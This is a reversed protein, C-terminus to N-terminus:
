CTLRAPSWGTEQAQLWHPVGPGPDGEEARQRAPPQLPSDAFAKGAGQLSLAPQPPLWPLRPGPQWPQTHVVHWEGLPAAQLCPDNTWGAPTARPSGWSLGLESPGASAQHHSVGSRPTKSGPWPLLMGEKGEPQRGAPDQRCLRWARSRVAPEPSCCAKNQGPPPAASAGPCPATLIVLPCLSKVLFRPEPALSFLGIPEAVYIGHVCDCMHHGPFASLCSTHRAHRPSPLTDPHPCRTWTLAPHRPLADPHPCTDPCLM